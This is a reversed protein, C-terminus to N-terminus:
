VAEVLVNLGKFVCKPGRFDSEQRELLVGKLGKAVLCGKMRRPSSSFTMKMYRVTKNQM